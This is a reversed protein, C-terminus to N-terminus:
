IRCSEPSTGNSDSMGAAMVRMSKLYLIHSELVLCGLGMNWIEQARQLNGLSQRSDPQFALLAACLRSGDRVTRHQKQSLHEQTYLWNAHYNQPRDTTTRKRVGGVRLAARRQQLDGARSPQTPFPVPSGLSECLPAPEPVAWRQRSASSTSHRLDSWAPLRCSASPLVRSTIRPIRSHRAKM